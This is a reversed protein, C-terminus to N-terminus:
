DPREAMIEPMKHEVHAASMMVPSVVAYAFLMIIVYTLIGKSFPRKAQRDEWCYVLFGVILLGGTAYFLYYIEAAGLGLSLFVFPLFFSIWMIASGLTFRFKLKTEQAM